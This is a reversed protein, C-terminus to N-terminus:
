FKFFLYDVIIFLKLEFDIFDSIKDTNSLLLCLEKDSTTSDNVYTRIENNM